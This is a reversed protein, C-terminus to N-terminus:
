AMVPQLRESHLGSCYLATAAHAALLGFLEHDVPEISSKQQLLRFIVIAGILNGDVALPICATLPGVSEGNRVWIEGSRFCSEIQQQAAAPLADFTAAELGFTLAIRPRRSAADIEIIALEESGILNVIIEEIGSLVETRILTSHLRLSAVYLNALNANQQEVELYDELYKRSETELEELQTQLDSRERTHTELHHQLETRLHRNDAELRAALARLRHNERLLDRTYRATDESVKRVYSDSDNRDAM